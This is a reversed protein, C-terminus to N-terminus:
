YCNTIIKGSDQFQRLPKLLYKSTIEELTDLVSYQMKESGCLMFVGGNKITEAVKIQHKLLINQVNKKKNCESFALEYNINKGLSPTDELVKRYYEFSSETKGEWILKLDTKHNEIAFGLYPVIGNGDAIYWVSTAKKPFHFQHNKKVIGQITDGVNLSCIYSSCSENPYWQISLLIEKGLKGVRYLRPSKYGQLSISMLDGSQFDNKKIPRLRLFVLNESILATQKTIKFKDYNIM